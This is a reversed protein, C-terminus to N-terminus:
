EAGDPRFYRFYSAMPGGAVAGLGCISTIKLTENLENVVAEGKELSERSPPLRRQVTKTAIGAQSGIASLTASTGAAHSETRLGEGIEVIRQSGLRCPVCKGCSENRFFESANVALDLPD